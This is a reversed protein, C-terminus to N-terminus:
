RSPFGNYLVIGVGSSTMDKKLIMGEQLGPERLCGKSFVELIQIILLTSTEKL